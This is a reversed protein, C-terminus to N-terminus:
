KKGIGLGTGRAFEVDGMGGPLNLVDLDTKGLALPARPNVAGYGPEYGKIRKAPRNGGLKKFVKDLGPINPVGFSKLLEQSLKKDADTPGGGLGLSPYGHTLANLSRAPGQGYKQGMIGVESGYNLMMGGIQNFFPLSEHGIDTGQSSRIELGPIAGLGIAFSRGMGFNGNKQKQGYGTPRGDDQMSPQRSPYLNLNPVGCMDSFTQCFIQLDYRLKKGPLCTIQFTYKNVPCYKRWDKETQLSPLVTFLINQRPLPVPTTTYFPRTNELNNQDGDLELSIDDEPNVPEEQSKLVFKSEFPDPPARRIKEDTKQNCYPLSPNRICAERVIDLFGGNKM